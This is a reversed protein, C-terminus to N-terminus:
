RKTTGGGERPFSHGGIRYAFDDGVRKLYFLSEPMARHASALAESGTRGPYYSGPEPEIAIFRGIEDPELVAELPEAYYHKGEEALKDLKTSSNQGIIITESVCLSHLVFKFRAITAFSGNRSM